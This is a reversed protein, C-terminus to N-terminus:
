RVLTIKGPLSIRADATRGHEKKYRYTLNNRAQKESVAYTSASWKHEICTEFALVPGDYLYRNM